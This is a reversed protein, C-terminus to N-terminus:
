NFIIESGIEYAGQAAETPVKLQGEVKQRYQVFPSNNAQVNFWSSNSELGFTRDLPISSTSATDYSDNSSFQTYYHCNFIEAGSAGSVVQQAHYGNMFVLKIQTQNGAVITWKVPEYSTLALAVPGARNVKIKINNVPHYNASHQASGQYLGLYFLATKSDQLGGYSLFKSCPKDSNTVVTTGTTGGTSGSPGKTTVDKSDDPSDKGPQDIEDDVKEAQGLGSKVDANKANKKAPPSNESDFKTESCGLFVMFSGSMLFPLLARAPHYFRM